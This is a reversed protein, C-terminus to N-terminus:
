RASHITSFADDFALWLLRTPFSRSLWTKNCFMRIKYLVPFSGRSVSAFYIFFFILFRYLVLSSHNFFLRFLFSTYLVNMEELSRISIDKKHTHKVKM